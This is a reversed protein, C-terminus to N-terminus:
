QEIVIDNVPSFIEGNKWRTKGLYKGKVWSYILILDNEQSYRVLDRPNESLNKLSTKDSAKYFVINYDSVKKFKQVGLTNVFSDIASESQKFGRFHEVIYHDSKHYIIKGNESDLSDYRNFKELPIFNIKKTGCSTALFSITFGLLILIKMKHNYTEM